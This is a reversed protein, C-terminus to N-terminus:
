GALDEPARSGGQSDQGLAPCIEPTWVLNLNNLFYKLLFSPFLWFGLNCFCLILCHVSCQNDEPIIRMWAWFMQQLSFSQHHLGSVGTVRFTLPLIVFSLGTQAPFSNLSLRPFKFKKEFYFTLFGLPSSNYNLPLAIAQYTCVELNM